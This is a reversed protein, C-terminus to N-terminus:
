LVSTVQGQAPAPTDPGMNVHAKFQGSAGNYGRFVPRTLLPLSLRKLLTSLETRTSELVWVTRRRPTSLSPPSVDFLRPNWKRGRPCSTMLSSQLLAFMTVPRLVFPVSTNNALSIVNNVPTILGPTPWEQEPPLQRSLATDFRPEVVIHSHDFFQPPLELAITDGPCLTTAVTPGRVVNTTQRQSQNPALAPDYYYKTGDEFTLEAKKSRVTIGNARCFSNGGIIPSSVKNIVLADFKFKLESRYFVARAEGAVDMEMFDATSPIQITNPKIDLLLRRADDIHILSSESGTDILLETTFKGFRAPLTPSRIVTVRAIRPGRPLAYRATDPDDDEDSDDDPEQHVEDMVVANAHLLRKKEREPM